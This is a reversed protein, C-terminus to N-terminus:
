SHSNVQYDLAIHYLKFDDEYSPVCNTLIVSQVGTIPLRMAAKVATAITKAELYSEAFVSLQYRSQEFGTEGSLDYEPTNSVELYAIAPYKCGQPLLYAFVRESVDPVHELLHQYLASDIM